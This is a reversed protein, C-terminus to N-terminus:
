PTPRRRSSREGVQSLTEKEEPLLQGLVTYEAVAWLQGNRNEVDFAVSAGKSQRWGRERRPISFGAEEVSAPRLQVVHHWQREPRQKM